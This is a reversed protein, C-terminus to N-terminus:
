IRFVVSPPEIEKDILKLFDSVNDANESIGLLRKGVPAKVPDDM